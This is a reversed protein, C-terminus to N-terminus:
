MHKTLTCFLSVLQLVNILPGGGVQAIIKLDLENAVKVWAELVEVREQNTLTMHEGTTGGVTSM